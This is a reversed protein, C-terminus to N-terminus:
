LAALGDYVLKAGILAVIIYMMPYFIKPSIRKTLWIGAMTAGIALPALVASTSLNSADFQGLMFYPVLKLVNTAAFFVTNTAAYVAPSHGLRLAYVQYPPAGAHAVFSTFGALGGWFTASVTNEGALATQGTLTQTAMRLVFLIAIIGVMLKVFDPTVTSALMWGIGVGIIGGPMLRKLTEWSAQGRWGWLAIADSVILIPLMIAAAKVPSIVLAMIPVGVLAMPGGVGGKSLGVLLVAPIAVLYFDPETVIPLM